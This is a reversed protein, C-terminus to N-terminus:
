RTKIRGIARAIKLIRRSTMLEIESNIELLGLGTLIQQPTARQGTPPTLLRIKQM